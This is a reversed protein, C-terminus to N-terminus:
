QVQNVQNVQLGAEGFLGLYNGLAVLALRKDGLRVKVKRTELGTRRDLKEELVLVQLAAGEDFGVKAFDPRPVGDDGITVFDTFNAFAIRALEAVVREATVEFRAAAEVLAKRRAAEHEAKIEAIRAAIEPRLGLRSAYGTSRRGTAILWAETLSKGQAREQALREHRANVLAGM